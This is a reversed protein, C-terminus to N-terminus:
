AADEDLHEALTRIYGDACHTHVYADLRDVKCIFDVNAVILVPCLRCRGDKKATVSPGKTPITLDAVTM